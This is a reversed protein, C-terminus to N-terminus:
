DNSLGVKDSIIADLGCNCRLPEQEGLKYRCDSKHEGYKELGEQLESIRSWDECNCGDYWYACVRSNTHPVTVADTELERVLARARFAEEAIELIAERAPGQISDSLAAELLEVQAELDDVREDKIRLVGRVYSAWGGAIGNRKGCLAESLNQLEELFGEAQEEAIARRTKEIKIARILGELSEKLKDREAQVALAGSNTSLEANKLFMESIQDALSKESIRLKDIEERYKGVRALADTLQHQMMALDHAQRALLSRAEVLRELGACDPCTWLGEQGGDFCEARPHAKCIGIQGASM